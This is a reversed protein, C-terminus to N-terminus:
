KYKVNNLFEEFLKLKSEELQKRSMKKITKKAQEAFKGTRPNLFYEIDEMIGDVWANPASPDGVCDIALLRLDDQVENVGANDKCPKLTGLARTSVGLQGGSEVLGKVIDGMPTPTVIAKGIFDNGSQHLELTRLCVRDLNINPGSPHNLEGWANKRQINESIYRESEKRLIDVPYIRKNRNAIAAQMFTGSLYLNKKGNAEEFLTQVTENVERLLKM